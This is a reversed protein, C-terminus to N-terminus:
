KLKGQDFNDKPLLLPNLQSLKTDPIKELTYKLWEFPNVHPQVAFQWTSNKKRCM